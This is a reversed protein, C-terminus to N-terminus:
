KWGKLRRDRMARSRSTKGRVPQAAVTELTADSAQVLSRSHALREQQGRVRFTSSTEIPVPRQDVNKIIDRGGLFGQAFLFLTPPVQKPGHELGQALDCDISRDADDPSTQDNGRAPSRENRWCNADDRDDHRYIDGAPMGGAGPM